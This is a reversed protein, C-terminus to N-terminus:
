EGKHGTPRLRYTQTPSRPSPDTQEVVGRRTLQLLDARVTPSPVALAEAIQQATREGLRSLLEIIRAERVERPLRQRTPTDRPAEAAPAVRLTAVVRDEHPAVILEYGAERALRAALLLGDGRQRAVGLGGLLSTLTLNRSWSGMVRGGEFRVHGTPLCGPSEIVMANTYQRIGIPTTRYTPAYSRHAIANVLLERVATPLPQSRRVTGRGLDAAIQLALLDVTEAAPPGYRLAREGPVDRGIADELSARFRRLHISSAPPAQDGRGVVWAGALTVSSGGEAAVGAADAAAPDALRLANAATDDVIPPPGPEHEFSIDGRADKLAVIDSETGTRVQGNTLIPVARDVHVEVAAPAVAACVWGSSRVFEFTAPPGCRRSADQFAAEVERDRATSSWLVYCGGLPRNALAALCRALESAPPLADVAMIPHDEDPARQFAEILLIPDM